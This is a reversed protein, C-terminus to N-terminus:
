LSKSMLVIKKCNKPVIILKHFFITHGAYYPICTSAISHRATGCTTEYSSTFNHIYHVTSILKELKKQMTFAM